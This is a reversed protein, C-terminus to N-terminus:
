LAIKSPQFTYLACLWTTSQKSFTQRVCLPISKSTKIDWHHLIIEFGYIGVIISRIRLVCNSILAIEKKRGNDIIYHNKNDTPKINFVM